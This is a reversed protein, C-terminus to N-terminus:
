RPTTLLPIADHNIGNVWLQEIELIQGRDIKLRVAFLTNRGLIKVRSQLSVQGQVPDAAILRYTTAGSELAVANGGRCGDTRHKRDDARRARTAARAEDRAQLDCGHLPEHLRRPLRPRVRQDGGSEM